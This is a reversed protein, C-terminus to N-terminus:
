RCLLRDGFLADAGSGCELAPQARLHRFELRLGSLGRWGAFRIADLKPSARPLACAIGQFRQASVELSAQLFSKTDLSRMLRPLGKTALSDQILYPTSDKVDIRPEPVATLSTLLVPIARFM